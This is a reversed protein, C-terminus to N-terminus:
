QHNLIFSVIGEISEKDDMANYFGIVKFILTNDNNIANTSILELLENKINDVEHLAKKKEFIEFLNELADTLIEYQKNRKASYIAHNYYEAAREDESIFKFGKALGSFIEAGRKEKYLQRNSSILVLSEDIHKRINRNDRLLIYIGIININICLIKSKDLAGDGEKLSKYVELADRYYKNERYCQGKLMNLTFLYEESLEENFEEISEIEDLSSDYEKLLMLIEAKNLLLELKIDMSIFAENKLPLKCFELAEKYKYNLKCCNSLKLILMAAMDDINDKRISEFAKIYYTYSKYYDKIEKYLDGIKEYISRKKDTLDYIMLFEEIEDVLQLNDVSLNELYKDVVREAQYEESELLYRASVHYDINRENCAM